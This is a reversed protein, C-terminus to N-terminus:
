EIQDRTQQDTVGRQQMYMSRISNEHQQEALLNAQLMAISQEAAKQLEGELRTIAAETKKVEPWEATYTVLLAARKDKLESIRKQIETIRESKVVEPVSYIDKAHRANEYIAQASKRLNEAQLLQ